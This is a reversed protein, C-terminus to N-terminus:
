ICLTWGNVFLFKKKGVMLINGTYRILLKISNISKLVFAILKDILYLLGFVFCSWCSQTELVDKWQHETWVKAKKGKKGKRYKRKRKRKGTKSVKRKKTTKKSTTKRKRKKYRRPLKRKTTKKAPSKKTPSSSSASASSTTVATSFTEEGVEEEQFIIAAVIFMIYLKTSIWICLHISVNM